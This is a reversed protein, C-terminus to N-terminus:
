PTYYYIELYTEVARQTPEMAWYLMGHLRLRNSEVYIYISVYTYREATRHRTAKTNVFHIRSLAVKRDSHRSNQYLLSSYFEFKQWYTCRHYNHRVSRNSLEHIFSSLAFSRFSLIFRFFTAFMPIIRLHIRIRVFWECPKRTEIFFLAIILMLSCSTHCLYIYIYIIYIHM